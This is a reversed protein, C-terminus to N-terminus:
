AELADLRTGYDEIVSQQASILEAQSAILDAQADVSQQVGDVLADPIREAREIEPASATSREMAATWEYFEPREERVGLVVSYDSALGWDRVTWSYNSLGYRATALQVTDMASVALGMINMPWTVRKEANARRLMIELIRQGRPHSTIHGLDYDAQRIDTATISRTPVPQPQYMSLPDIYTGSVETAIEGEDALLPMSIPGALDDELLSASVPVWYGVRMLHKGGSYTYTGACCTVFTQRVESPPAGVEIVSDFAYREETGGGALPVQEDSVNCQAALWDDDPMEDLYAGFGGDERPMALWDYFVAAANRTYGILGTRPDRIDDKGEWEATINPMGAQVVAETMEFKGYFKAVGRGRHESTWKPACESVFTANATANEEGREFWLWAGNAYAGSIVKGSGDVTVAEDNLFFRVVGKCRHGAVAVVFYRYHVKGVKRPHFFVVVGGARRKGYLVRANAISQRFMSPASAASQTGPKGAIATMVLGAAATLAITIAATAVTIALATAATTGLLALLGPALAPAAVAIAIAIGVM